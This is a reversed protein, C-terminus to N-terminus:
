KGLFHDSLGMPISFLVNSLGDINNEDVSQRMLIDYGVLVKILKERKIKDDNIEGLINELIGKGEKEFWKAFTSCKIPDIKYFYRIRAYYSEIFMEYIKRKNAKYLRIEDLRDFLFDKTKLKDM